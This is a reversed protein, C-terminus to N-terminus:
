LHAYVPRVAEKTRASELMAMTGMAFDHGLAYANFEAIQNLSDDHTHDLAYNIAKKTGLMAVPIKEALTGAYTLAAEVAEAKTRYVEQVFGQKHAEQASFNRGTFCVDKVWGLNNVVRPLRQLTGIDAAMGIEIERVSFVADESAFRIDTATMIDIALGISPGHAVSIVPKNIYLPQACADQFERILASLRLANRSSDESQPEFESAMGKVDLGATFARGEGSLVVARVRPDQGARRFIDGFALYTAKNVANLKAPKNFRVHLVGRPLLTALLEDQPYDSMLFTAPYGVGKHIRILFGLRTSTFYIIYRINTTEQCHYSFVCHM